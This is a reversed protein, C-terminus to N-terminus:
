GGMMKKSLMATDVETGDALLVPADDNKPFWFRKPKIELGARAVYGNFEFDLYAKRDHRNVDVIRNENSRLPGDMVIYRGNEKYGRSMGILGENSIDMLFDLFKEEEENLDSLGYEDENGDFVDEGSAKKESIGLEKVYTGLKSRHTRVFEHLEYIDMDSRIFIYGPFIPKVELIGSGRRWCEISPCLVKGRDPPFEKSFEQRILEQKLVRTFLVCYHINKNQ